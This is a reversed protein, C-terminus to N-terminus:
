AFCLFSSQYLSINDHGLQLTKYWNVIIQRMYEVIVRGATAIM